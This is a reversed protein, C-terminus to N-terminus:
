DSYPQTISLSHGDSICKLTGNKTSYIESDNQKLSDILKKFYAVEGGDTIVSYKPHVKQSFAIVNPDPIGHHPLKLLTHELTGDYSNMLEILRGKQADGTLFFTNEGHTIDVILSYENDNYTDYDYKSKKTGNIKLTIDDIDSSISGNVTIPTINQSFLENSFEIYEHHYNQYNPIYVNETRFNNLLINAGGVHDSDFHTIILDNITHIEEKKLYSLVVKADSDNGADVVIVSKSTKLIMCDAKGINLFLIEFPKYSKPKNSTHSCSCITLFIFSFYLILILKKIRSKMLYRHM